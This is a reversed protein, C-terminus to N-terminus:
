VTGRVTYGKKGLGRSIEYNAQHVIRNFQDLYTQGLNTNLVNVGEQIDYEALYLYAAYLCFAKHYIDSVNWTGYDSYVPAPKTIYPVTVTESATDPPPVLQLQMRPQPQIVWTDASAWDKPNGDSTFMATVLNEDDTVSLVVGTADKKSNHVIDGASVYTKFAEGTDTLNAQGGSLTGASTTTGTLQTPLTTKQHLTFLSPVDVSDDDKDYVTKQYPQFTLLYEVSSGDTYRIFYEGGKKENTKLYLRLYNAALDYDAQDAVTTIDQSSVLCGTLNVFEEAGAHLLDFTMKRNVVAAKSKARILHETFIRATKGDM